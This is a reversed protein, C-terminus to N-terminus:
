GGDQPHEGHEASVLGANVLGANMAIWVLHADNRAGIKSKIAYHHNRVTKHSLNLMGAIADSDFGLALLRLIEMERPGLDEVASHAGGLRDVAVARAIDESLYRRGQAAEAVAAILEGPDSSKTVYGLAGAEFAKLAFAAGAHMSFILIRAQKDWEKIHRLAELGGAGPLALDMVVVRPQREKYLRYALKADDAEACVRFDPRRELLRRYGERVVPHDDVLLISIVSM